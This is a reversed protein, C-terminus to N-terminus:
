PAFARIDVGAGVLAQRLAVAMGLAGPSDGHVCISDAKVMVDTGDSAQIQGTTVMRIMREAVQGPDDLLAGPQSRPVLTGEPTYGRDAFAESVTRLGAKGALSLFVSGPLGLVPLSEDYLRVAEVVAGAQGADHVATNYLAGHPKVYRVRTGAVRAFGDLAAIQYIVDHTLRGPEVDIARRGFGALDQYGVQAGIVVGREAARDCVRRMIDPDGAHFGCAVNASTVVGLLGDDDGLSWVGFGEGLDSNLDIKAAVASVPSV